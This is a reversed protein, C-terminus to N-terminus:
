RLSEGQQGLPAFHGFYAKSREVELVLELLGQRVGRGEDESWQHILPPWWQKGTGQRREWVLSFARQSCSHKTSM